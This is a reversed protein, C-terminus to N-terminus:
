LKTIFSIIRGAKDGEKRFSYFDANQQVTCIGHDLLNRGSAGAELLQRRNESGLDFHLKGKRRHLSEKPFHGTFEEGVAYADAGIRPGFIVRVKSAPVGSRESILKLIKVAIGAKTGRWGAHALGVWEGASFFISLCDASFVLLAVDPVCTLAGDASEQPYFGPKQFSSAGDITVIRDGHVQKLLVFKEIPKLTDDLMKRGSSFLDLFKTQNQESLLDDTKSLHLSFHRTTYGAEVGSKEWEKFSFLDKKFRRRFVWWRLRMAARPAVISLGMFIFVWGPLIPLVVGAVGIFIFLLGLLYLLFGKIPKMSVNYEFHSHPM